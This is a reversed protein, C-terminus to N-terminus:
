LSRLSNHNRMGTNTLWYIAVTGPLYIWWPLFAFFAVTLTVWALVGFVLIIEETGVHDSDMKGIYGYVVEIGNGSADAKPAKSRARTSRRM